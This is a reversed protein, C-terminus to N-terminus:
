FHIEETEDAPYETDFSNSYETDHEVFPKWEDEKDQMTPTQALEKDKNEAQTKELQEKAYIDYQDEIPEDTMEKEGNM